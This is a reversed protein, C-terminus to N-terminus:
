PAVLGNFAVRELTPSVTTTGTLTVRYQIYRSTGPVDAGASVAAFSSWTGDPTATNGQRVEVVTSTGGPLQAGVELAQWDAVSGADLVRSTFVGTRTASGLSMRDIVLGPAAAAFDSAVAGMAGTIAVTQTHRVTGDISFVIRDSLWDIRYTHPAGVLGTGIVTDAMTGNNNTRAYLTDTTGMTSFIAWRSTGALDVGLGAHQYAAAGFTAVFEVSSGPASQGTTRLLAGNVSVTGGAVTSGGSGGSWLSSAWGSPVTSGDFDTSVTPVSTTVRLWRMVIGGGGTNYDSAIPRMSGSVTAASHVLAGDIFFRLTSDWEIRFVHESGVYQAGLPVDVVTGGANRIRAQLVGSAANTGFMAWSETAGGLTDAFGANQYPAGSFTASFEVARGSGATATTRLWSGDVSATGVPFTVGGGTWAGTAWGTPVGSGEFEAGILPALVLEGGATNAVYTSTGLTGGGFQALTTDELVKAVASTTTFSWTSSSGLPNGVTDTVTGAVTVTYRTAPALAANPNLTAVGGSVSLSAPVDAGAGQARLSFTASTITAAAIPESFTVAIDAGVGVDVADPAPNRGTITPGTTDPTPTTFQAVASTSTNGSADRSVIRYSYTTQAALGTLDISHATTLTLNEAVSDLANPSTGYEVRTTSQEDTTWTIRASSQGTSQAALGTIAPPTTDPAPPRPSYPLNVANLVPTVTVNTTTLRARYQLYRSTAPVDQGSAIPAFATWSGDPTATDGTRVDLALTTGQPTSGTFSLIGWDSATGADHVRSVFSGSSAYPTLRLWKLTLGGGGTTYESALPRMTGGVTAATHVLSGDVYFRVTSDWEIRFLHESGIYQSGLAVDLVDGGSNRTRAQLIGNTGNTGFMAWSEGAGALTVGFGANQFPAGSFTGAFEVARGSGVATDTRLWSGDLSATGGPFTTTGGTWSGTTWGAPVGSGEFETGVLPALVVEGGASNAVYTGVGPTGASFQSLSTDTAAATPTTFSVVPAGTAPWSGVNGSADTAVVRYYYTTNPSLGTLQVRHSTTPVGTQVSSTMATSSTGFEVRSTAAENTTWSVEATTGGTPAATAGSITPPTSDVSYTATYNGGVATFVAYSVGKVVKTQFSVGAGARTLSQLTGTSGQTPLMAQLGNAGPAATLTFTVTGGNRALNTFSSANRGDTWDLLQEATIVPIGRAQAATLVADHYAGAENGDTHLNAVFAGYYGKDIAGDMLAVATAPYAQGSEDTMQTTAQYVDILRGDLSLFRQAMGSGTFMGPRTGAWSPPWYYYNADLNIGAREEEEPVTTYDVWFVCDNRSTKPPTISPYNRALAALQETLLAAFQARSPTGCGSNPHLAIEFGQQEYTRAQADSILSYNVFQYSTSRICEWATPLCGAPSRSLESTFRNPVNGGNHEDATMVVAAVEGRPLYWFRPVPIVDRTTETILNALLRQQEDAQPIAVKALDIYDTYFLDNSRIPSTGDREQGVWAPNGQRTNVISRALDFTFAAASGGASGVPRVTVAPFETATTATSYLQAVVQTGADRPRYLDATGHFQMTAAEIGQGPKKSTDVQLYGESLSGGAATLGLLGALSASPRMVILNGGANVWDTLATVQADTLTTEGLVVTEYPALATPTFSSTTRVTFLNLGEGRMIEPLYAGFQSTGKVVLLPGGPGINPNSRTGARAITAFTWSYEAAMPNGAADTVGGVGGAITVTYESSYELAAVPDIMASKTAADYSAVANVLGGAADRLQVTSGTISGAAMSESFIAAINAEVGFDAADRTPWTGTVVPPTSDPGATTFAWTYNAQLPTGNADRVGGSGGKVTVSHRTALALPQDPDIVASTTAADYGVQAPVLNGSADRLEITSSSISGADMAESFAVTVNAGAVAGTADTAPSTATVVPATTNEGSTLFGWTIDAALRNGAADAIGAAGGTVTATYRTGSALSSTPNLIARRDVASYGVAAPVVNGSPDRLQFTSTNVTAPDLPESFTATIDATPNAGSADPAPTSATLTPATTDQPATSTFLVDVLYNASEWSNAPFVGGAGYAYVGNPGDVGGRLAHLPPSDVGASAFSTGLAYRGTNTHYSAVYTTGPQVTVPASFAAEQWGAASEAGFTVTALRQGSASWLTGTHAGTNGSTKFYRIGVVQGPVDSRFKVGLEVASGDAQEPGTVSQAFISSCALGTPCATTALGLAVPSSLNAGDDAARVRIAPSGALATFTHSWSERGTARRWTSGGDTSVEVVGVVGGGADTATGSVTRTGPGTVSAVSSTIVVSPATRDTTGSAAVLGTQITAPQAGMDALLNVTAQQVNRDETGAGGDHQGDLGWSWQVTGAGFVLAGSPARYLSLHHQESGITTTSLLVRGPPYWAAYQPYEPNWEYGLTGNALTVRGSPSLGAVATNKWFRMRAYDGPVEIASTNSRWSIQGSLANEPEGIATTGSPSRTERWLGTWIDSPDCAFNAYCRQHEDPAAPAATGEKYVVMTRRDGDVGDQTSDEMRTKWYIENGSFFALDVGADRAAEVADRQEQSWYEDHGVSFFAQHELLEAPRAGTDLDTSYSVDYGNRELWRIMPYEATFVWDQPETARTTFPRNYSVKRANVGTSGTTYTNYGGYGNYAQWTSDSTQFLLDSNGDDDRVIFVIHSAGGNDARVPKAIYVGSVADGPVDWSASVSWNGCDVLNDDTTGDILACSPQDRETTASTDITTIKRAGNGQYWGLRYIDIRYDAAVTDIKFDVREGQNVSIQTAFGQVGQNGAGQIDWESAPSGPLSNEVTIENDVAQAPAAPLVALPM